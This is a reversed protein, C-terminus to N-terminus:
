SWTSLARRRTGPFRLGSAHRAPMRPSPGALEVAKSRRATPSAGPRRTGHSCRCCRRRPAAPASCCSAAGPRRCGLNAALDRVLGAGDTNDGLIRGRRLRAHQGCRGGGARRIDTPSAFARRSRCPSTPAAGAGARFERWRGPSTPRAPRAPGRLRPGQGTQHRLPRIWPPNTTADPQQRRRLPGDAGLRENARVQDSNTFTWTRTIEIVDHGGASTPPLAYPPWRCSACRRM